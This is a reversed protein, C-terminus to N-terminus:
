AAGDNTMRLFVISVGVEAEWTRELEKRLWTIKRGRRTQRGLETVM